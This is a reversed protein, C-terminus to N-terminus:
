DVAVAVMVGVGWSEAKMGLEVGVGIRDWEFELDLFLTPSSITTGCCLSAFYVSVPVPVSVPTLSSPSSTRLCSFSADTGNM